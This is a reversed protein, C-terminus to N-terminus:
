EVNVNQRVRYMVNKTDYGQVVLLHTGHAAPVNHRLTPGTSTAVLKGDLYAEMLKIPNDYNQIDADIVIPSAVDAYDGPSNIVLGAVCIAGCPPVGIYEHYTLSQVISSGSTTQGVVKLAVPKATIPFLSFLGNLKPGSSTELLKGNLYITYSAISPAGSIVLQTNDLQYSGQTPNCIKFGTAPAKCQPVLSDFETLYESTQFVHGAQDWAKLTYLHQGNFTVDGGYVAINFSSQNLSLIQAGDGYLVMRTIPSGEGTAAAEFVPDGTVIANPTPFYIRVGATKPPACTALSASSLALVLLSAVLFSSVRNM